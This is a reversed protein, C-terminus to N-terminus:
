PTCTQFFVSRLRALDAFNVVGDNTLDPDCANGYGDRDSDRQAPDAVDLCLDQTDPVGDADRDAAEVALLVQGPRALLEAPSAGEATSVAAATGLPVFGRLDPDYAFWTRPGQLRDLAAAGLHGEFGALLEGTAVDWAVLEDESRGARLFAVLVDTTRVVRGDPLPLLHAADGNRLSAGTVFVLPDAAAPACWAAVLALAIGRTTRALPM